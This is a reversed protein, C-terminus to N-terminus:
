MQRVGRVRRPRGPLSGAARCLRYRWDAEAQRPRGRPLERYVPNAEV